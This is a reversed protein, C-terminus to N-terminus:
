TKIQLENFISDILQILWNRQLETAYGMCDCRVRDKTRVLLECSLRTETIELAFYFPQCSVHEVQCETLIEQIIPIWYIGDVSGHFFREDLCAKVKKYEWPRLEDIVYQKMESFLLM